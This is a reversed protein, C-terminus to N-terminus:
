DPLSAADVVPFSGTFRDLISFFTSVPSLDGSVLVTGLQVARELSVRCLLVDHLAQRDFSLSADAPPPLPCQFASLAGNSVEVLWHEDDDLFHWAMSAALGTAKPANMRVALADLLQGNTMAPLLEWGIAIKEPPPPGERYEHAGLLYANRWTASEAQFGMQEMADAALQRAAEHEPFAYVAHKMVEAVWRYEGRDFDERAHQMVAEIGGMYAITKMASPVPPLAHLNAPHADYWSLYKQYVAKVNHSVTGYFGRTHWRGLLGMPMQFQEAIEAPKLGHSMMRVTEDHLLKYMDRQESLFECLRANGWTPWQHQAFLVDINPGFRHLAENLYKSWALADRVEAGRLPCLNHMTHNTNEALNLARFEPFYFHMEAPAESGLALQFEITVGDIVHTELPMEITLTPAVLGPKPHVLTKGVGSDVNGEPGKPLTGGFQFDARRRMAPGAIIREFIADHMFGAPGIIAVEGSEVQAKTVLGLVGGYHDGHSHSYMVTHLARRAEPDRHKRYLALAAAAQEPRTLADLAILGKAGEIFTINAIDFGRVQYIGPVVEFLGHITNLRANRWLGPHVTPAPTDSDLFAYGRQSWIVLDDADRVEADEVTGIFGRMADDFDEMDELPLDRNVLNYFDLTPGLSRAM